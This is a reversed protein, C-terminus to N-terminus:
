LVREWFGAAIRSWNFIEAVHRREDESVLRVGNSFLGILDATVQNEPGEAVYDAHEGFWQRYHPADFVVPRAGCLLGEAAPLEFGEVRRLGAVRLCESWLRALQTDTVGHAYAVGPGLRLDPGLHLMARRRARVAADYCERVGETEAVFGSTGIEFLKLGIPDPRFTSADVGLPAYYFGSWGPNLEDQEPFERLWARLDYYSWVVRAQAWLSGWFKPTPDETTRLCYQVIAHPKNQEAILHDLPTDSFNSVGVVHHIVFDAEAASTVWKVHAPAHSVIAHSVRQIGLGLKSPLNMYVNM